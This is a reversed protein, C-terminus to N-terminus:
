APAPGHRRRRKANAGYAGDVGNAEELRLIRLGVDRRATGVRTMADRIAPSTAYFLSALAKIGIVLQRVLYIPSAVLHELVRRRDVPDISAITGLKRITFLPALAILWLTVRIGFSQEFPASRVLADLLRAPALARIGHPLRSEPPDPYIADFTADTWALEFPFLRPM